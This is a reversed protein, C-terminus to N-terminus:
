NFPTRSPILRFLEDRPIMLESHGLLDVYTEARALVTELFGRERIAGTLFARAATAPGAEQLTAAWAACLHIVPRSPAWVRTRVNGAETMHVDEAVGASLASISVRTVGKPLKPKVGTEAKSLFAIAMHGATLRKKLRDSLKKLDHRIYAEPRCAQAPIIRQLQEAWLPDAECRERLMWACLSKYLARREGDGDPEPRAVVSLFLASVEFLNEDDFKVIFREPM